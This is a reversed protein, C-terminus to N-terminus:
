LPHTRGLDPHFALRLVCVPRTAQRPKAVRCVARHRSARAALSKNLTAKLV